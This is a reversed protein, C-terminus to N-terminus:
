AARRIRIRWGADIHDPILGATPGQCLLADLPDLRVPGSPGPMELAATALILTWEADDAGPQDTGRRLEHSWLGRRTMVNLDTIPQGLLRASVPVDAPFALPPADRTLRHLGSGQLQLEIGDGSLVALSRDIGPFISFDGDETVGAMSIRWEFGDLGATEPWVAIEVTEGRGNKWPMRRHDAARLIRLSM